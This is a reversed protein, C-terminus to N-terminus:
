TLGLMTAWDQSSQQNHWYQGERTFGLGLHNVKNPSLIFDHGIRLWYSNYQNVWAYSLPQPLQDAATTPYTGTYFFGNIRNRDSFNHDIKIDVQDRDVKTAGVALYNNLLNNNVPNPIYPLIKSSVASFRNPPIQNNPFPQRTAAGNVFTTSQPDYIVVPQGKSNVLGSFDGKRFALPPVSILNNAAGQRYRFGSWVFHFFTRNAGKYLKPIWVPGGIAVGYENQRNVPTIPSFFGRADFVNNRLYEFLSGHFQNTGSRTTFIEFGGGTRGYEANFDSGLLEFESIAEVSPYSFLIGGSEPSTSGIGDVLVEKSRSQSGNIQTNSTTGTVGPTLFMFSEPNRMNGTISLPLDMVMQTTVATGIESTNTQVAAAASTVEVSQNVQGIQLAANLTLTQAVSLNVNAAIFTKFGSKEITVKYAGEPLQQVAYDGTSSSKARYTVSTSLNVASVDVDPVPAGSADTVTGTITGRNSQAFASFALLFVFASFLLWILRVRRNM